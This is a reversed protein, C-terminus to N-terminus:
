NMPLVEYTYGELIIWDTASGTLVGVLRLAVDNRTDVGNNIWLIAQGNAYDQGYRMNIQRTEDNRNQIINNFGATVAAGSLNNQEGFIAAGFYSTATKISAGSPISWKTSKRVAGNPGMSRGPLTVTALTAEVGVQATYAGPTIGSPKITAAEDLWLQCSFQDFFTAYYLGAALGPQAFCYVQVVGNPKSPLAPHGTIVGTSNIATSSGLLIVPVARQALIYPYPNAVHAFERYVDKPVPTTLSSSPRTERSGYSNSVSGPGKQEITM